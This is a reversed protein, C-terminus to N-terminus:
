FCPLPTTAVVVDDIRVGIPPQSDTSWDIGVAVYDYGANPFTDIGIIQAPPDGDVGFTVAGQADDIDVGLEICFWRDRPVPGTSVVFAGLEDLYLELRDGDVLNIDPGYVGSDYADLAALNVGDVVAGSEAYAFLRLYIWGDSQPEFSRHARAAAGGEAMRAVLCGQGAHAGPCPDEFWADGETESSWYTDFDGEFGSCVLADPVDACAAALEATEFGFKGCGALAILM